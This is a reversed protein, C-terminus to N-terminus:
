KIFPKKNHGESFRLENAPADIVSAIIKRLAYRTSLFRERDHQMRFRKSKNIEDDSLIQERQDKITEFYHSVKIKIIHDSQLDLKQHHNFDNWNIGTEVFLEESLM